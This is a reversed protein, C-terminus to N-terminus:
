QLILWVLEILYKFSAPIIIFTWCWGNRDILWLVFWDSDIVTKLCFPFSFVQCKFWGVLDIELPSNPTQSGTTRITHLLTAWYFLLKETFGWLLFEIEWHLLFCSKRTNVGWYWAKLGNGLCILVRTESHASWINETLDLLLVSWIWDKWSSWDRWRKLRVDHRWRM